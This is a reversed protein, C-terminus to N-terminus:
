QSVDLGACGDMVSPSYGHSLQTGSASTLYQACEQRLLGCVELAADEFYGLPGACDRDRNVLIYDTYPKEPFYRWPCARLCIVPEGSVKSAAGINLDYFESSPAPHCYLSEWFYPKAPIAAPDAPLTGLATAASDPPPSLEVEHSEVRAACKDFGPYLAALLVVVYHEDTRFRRLCLVDAKNARFALLLEHFAEPETLARAAQSGWLLLFM